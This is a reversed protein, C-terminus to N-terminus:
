GFSNGCGCTSTANPNDIKFGSGQLNDVFDITTGVLHSASKKDIFLKVAHQEFVIDDKGSEKEFDMGYQYGACGGPVVMIRLGYQGKKEAKMYEKVKAAAHETLTVIKGDKPLVVEKQELEKIEPNSTCGGCGM